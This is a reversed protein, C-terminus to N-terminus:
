AAAPKADQRAYGDMGLGLYVTFLVLGASVLFPLGSSRDYLFGFLIPFLVRAVGGFTQQVGMYLGREKSSIVRSLLSTVCPFTFATGLPLFAVAIALPLYPLLAVARAPLIGGLMAAVGAPDALPRIFALLAIGTALIITGMRALRPEGYRDIMRGLILARTVVSLAGIYAFFFGITKETVGFRASLLLALMSTVGQFAGIAIAYIWILRSAPASSHSVVHAIADRSRARTTTDAKSEAAEQMDRSENLFRWAFVINLTCLVAAFLGPGRPGMTHTLSGLLPGLAVGANTAASLWGLAKAREEPGTSDAVYAQIVGVTGGGAGQVVRSLYLFFLAHPLSLAFAFIVYAIASAALGVLLAPRRGYADSFRGWMPASVLQAVNFSAILTGVVLGGAGLTKAYFPLLPIVMLLGVMDIFATIMLIWLKSRSGASLVM